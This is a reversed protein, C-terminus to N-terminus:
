VLRYQKLMQFITDKDNFMLVDIMSLGRVFDGGLQQYPSLESELFSLQVGNDAFETKDYLTKGGTPNIYHVADLQKTIARLRESREFGVTENFSQSSFHFNTNLDLYESVLTISKAALQSILHEEIALTEEVLNYVVDFYPAKKYSFAITKLLKQYNKSSKDVEIENIKKNLSAKILPVTILNAQKNVLINNRNIWGRKIFNVDDYFVFDDVTSVIQFYGLYPFFYPQIIAVKKM